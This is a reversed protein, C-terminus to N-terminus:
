ASALASAATDATSDHCQRCGVQAGDHQLAQVLDAVAADLELQNQQQEDAARLIMDVLVAPLKSDLSREYLLAARELRAERNAGRMYRTILGHPGLIANIGECV